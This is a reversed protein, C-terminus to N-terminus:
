PRGAAVARVSRSASRGAASRIRGRGSAGCRGGACRRVGGRRGGRAGHGSVGGGARRWALGLTRWTAGGSLPRLV